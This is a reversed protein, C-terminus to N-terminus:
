LLPADATLPAEVVVSAVVVVGEVESLIDTRAAAVLLGGRSVERLWQMAVREEEEEEAIADDLPDM